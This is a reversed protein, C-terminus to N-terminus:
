DPSSKLTKLDSSNKDNKHDSEPAYEPAYSTLCTNAQEIQALNKM